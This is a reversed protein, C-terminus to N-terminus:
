SERILFLLHYIAGIRVSRGRGPTVRAEVSILQSKQFDETFMNMENQVLHFSNKNATKKM